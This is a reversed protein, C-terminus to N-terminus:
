KSTENGSNQADDTFASFIPVVLATSVLFFLGAAIARATPSPAKHKRVIPWLFYVSVSLLLLVLVIVPQDEFKEYFFVLVDALSGVISFIWGFIPVLILWGLLVLFGHKLTETKDQFRNTKELYLFVAVAIGTLIAGSLTHESFVNTILETWGSVLNIITEM